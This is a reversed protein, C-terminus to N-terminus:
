LKKQCEPCLCRISLQYDIVQFGNNGDQLKELDLSPVDVDFIRKCEVCEMHHHPQVTRDYRDSCNALSIRLLKGEHALINLNRYVTGLGIRPMRTKAREYVQQATPHDKSDRVVEMVLARQRTM